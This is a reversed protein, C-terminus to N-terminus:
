RFLLHQSHIGAKKLLAKLEKQEESSLGSFARAIRIAHIPYIEDMYKQGKDTLKAFVSRKDKADPQRYIFENKELKDIFYTVNGSVL